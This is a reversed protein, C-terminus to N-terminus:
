AAYEPPSRRISETFDTSCMKCPFFMAIGEILGTMKDQQLRTPTDPYKIAANHLQRTCTTDLRTTLM